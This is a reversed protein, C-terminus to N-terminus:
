NIKGQLFKKLVSFLEKKKFPKSIFDSCGSKLAKERDTVYASQAIISLNPNFDKILKAATCGDLESMKLDMLVIDTDKLLKCYELAEKGNTARIVKMGTELLFYDILKFNVDNDEAVLVTVPCLIM